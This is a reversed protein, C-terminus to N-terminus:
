INYLLVFHCKVTRNDVDCDYLMHYSMDIRYDYLRRKHDEPEPIVVDVTMGACGLAVVEPVM